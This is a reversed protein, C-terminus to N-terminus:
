LEFQLGLNIEMGEVERKVEDELNGILYKINFDIRFGEPLKTNAGIGAGYVMAGDFGAENKQYFRGDGLLYLGGDTFALVKAYLNLETQSGNMNKDDQRITYGQMMENKGKLRHIVELFLYDQGFRYFIGLNLM